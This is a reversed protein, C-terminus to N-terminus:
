EVGDFGLMSTPTIRILIFDLKRLAERTYSEGEEAGKYHVSVARVTSSVRDKSLTATGNVQVWRQPLEDTAVCLAVRPDNRVNRAKVSSEEVAVIVQEGDLFHWVPSM